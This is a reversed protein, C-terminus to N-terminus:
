AALGEPLQHFIGRTPDLTRIHRAVSQRMDGLHGVFYGVLSPHSSLRDIQERISREPAAEGDVPVCQVLLIGARDAAEYLSESGYHDRVILLSRGSVPLLAQEDIWDIPVVNEIDCLQGNVLLPASSAASDLQNRRVSTLGVSMQRQDIVQEGIQLALTLQYLAQDGMGAPWWRQPHVVEFRVAGAGQELELRTQGEDHFGEESDLTILVDVTASMAAPAGQDPCPIAPQIQFRVDLIAQDEDVYRILPRVSELRVFSGSLAASPTTPPVFSHSHILDKM